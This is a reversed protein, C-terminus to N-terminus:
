KGSMINALRLIIKHPILNSAAYFAKMGFGYISIEKRAISDKLAQEVVDQANAMFLDKFWARQHGDEAIRFFDTAVPGPCVATVYIQKKRFEENLARSLSLVYSKTAAYIAFNPQPVFAASSALNIIRSKKMMYPLVMGIMATLGTCNTNIMGLSVELATDDIPGIIGYGACNVLLKVNAKEQRLMKKFRELFGPDAIDESVIICPKNIDERIEELLDRRRAILWIEDICDYKKDVAYVFEKGMGSSAGTIIAIRKM